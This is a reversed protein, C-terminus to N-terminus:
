AEVGVGAERALAANAEAFRALVSAKLAPDIKLPAMGDPMRWEGTVTGRTNGARAFVAGQLTTSGTKPLGIHLVLM